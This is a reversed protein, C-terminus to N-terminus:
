CNPFADTICLNNLFQPYNFADRKRVLDPRKWRKLSRGPPAEEGSWRWEQSGSDAEGGKKGVSALTKCSGPHQHLPPPPLHFSVSETPASLSLLPAHSEIGAALSPNFIGGAAPPLLPRLLTLLQQLCGPGRGPLPQLLSLDTTPASM